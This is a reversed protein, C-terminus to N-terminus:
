RKGTRKAVLSLSSVLPLVFLLLNSFVFIYMFLSSRQKMGARGTIYAVTERIGALYITLGVFVLVVFTASVEAITSWLGTNM